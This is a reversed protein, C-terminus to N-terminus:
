SWSLTNTICLYSTFIIFVIIYKGNLYKCHVTTDYKHCLLIGTDEIPVIWSKAWEKGSSWFQYVNLFESFIEEWVDIIGQFLDIFIINFVNLYLGWAGSNMVKKLKRILWHRIRNRAISQSGLGTSCNPDLWIRIRLVAPLANSQRTKVLFCLKFSALRKQIKICTRPWARSMCGIHFRCRHWEKILGIILAFYFLLVDTSPM